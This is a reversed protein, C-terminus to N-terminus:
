DCLSLLAKVLEEIVADCDSATLRSAERAIHQINLNQYTINKQDIKEFKKQLTGERYDVIINM